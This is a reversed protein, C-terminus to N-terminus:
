QIQLWMFFWNLFNDTNFLAISYWFTRRYIKGGILGQLILLKNKFYVCDKPWENFIMAQTSFPLDRAYLSQIQHSISTQCRVQRICHFFRNTVSIILDIKYTVNRHKKKCEQGENKSGWMFFTHWICISEKLFWIKWKGLVKVM